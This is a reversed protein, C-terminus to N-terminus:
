GEGRSDCAQIGVQWSEERFHNVSEVHGFVFEWAVEGWVARNKTKGIEVGNKWSSLDSLKSDHEIRKECKIDLGIVVIAM